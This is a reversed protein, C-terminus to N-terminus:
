RLPSFASSRSKRLSLRRSAPHFSSWGDAEFQGKALSDFDFDPQAPLSALADAGKKRIAHFLDRLRKAARTCWANYMAQEQGKCFRFNIRFKEWWLNRVHDPAMTFCDKGDFQLEPRSDLTTSAAAHDMSTSPDVIPPTPTPHTQTQAPTGDQSQDAVSHSHVQSRPPPPPPPPPSPTHTPTPTPTPAPPNTEPQIRAGPTPIMTITELGHSLIAAADATVSPSTTSPTAADTNACLQSPGRLDLPRGTNKRPRGRGRGSTTTASGCGRGDGRGKAM